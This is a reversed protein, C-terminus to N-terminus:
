ECMARFFRSVGFIGNKGSLRNFRESVPSVRQRNQDADRWCGQTKRSGHLKEM